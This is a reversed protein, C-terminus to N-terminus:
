KKVVVEAIMGAAEHPICFYKYTGPVKFPHKYTGNPKIDGSNFPKAGEPLAYDADRAVLKPDDTVTHVLASVNKWEVTEGAKVTVRPPEFKLEDVLKVVAAPQGAHVPLALVLAGSAAAAIAVLRVAYRWAAGPAECTRLM